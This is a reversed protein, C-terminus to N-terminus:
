QVPTGYPIVTPVREAGDVRAIKWGDPLKELYLVQAENRDQYVYEVRVKTERETLPEPEAIAIGKVSANLQKLYRAFNDATSEALAQRLSEAVKGTYANLYASINGERAADLMAYVADQPTPEARPASRPVFDSLSISRRTWGYKQGLVIAFAGALVAM